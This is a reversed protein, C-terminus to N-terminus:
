FGSMVFIKAPDIYPTMRATILDDLRWRRLCDDMVVSRDPAPDLGTERRLQDYIPTRGGKPVHFLSGRLPHTTGLLEDFEVVGFPTQM